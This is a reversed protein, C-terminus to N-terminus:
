RKRSVRRRIAFIGIALGCLSAPEPVPQVAIDDFLNASDQGTQTTQFAFTNSTSTATFVATSYFTWQPGAATQPGFITASGNLIVLMPNSVNGGVNGNRTAMWFTVDYEHGIQFGGVTQEMFAQKGPFDIGDSEVFAYQNGSHAGTGWSGSGNAIGTNFEGKWNWGVPNPVWGGTTIVPMEFGANAFVQADAVSSLGMLASTALLAAIRREFKININM